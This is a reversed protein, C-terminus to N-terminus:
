KVVNGMKKVKDRSLGTALVAEKITNYVIGFVEIKIAAPNKGGKYSIGNNRRTEIIRKKTEDTHTKGFFPNNEGCFLPNYCVGRVFGDPPEEKDPLSITVTGNNYFKYGKTTKGTFLLGKVWGDPVEYDFFVKSITGNNYWSKGKIYSNKSMKERTDDSFKRNKAVERMKDKTEDSCIKCVKGDVFKFANPSINCLNYYEPSIVANYENILLYEMQYLNEISDYEFHLVKRHFRDIGYKKIARKFHVGSGLYGDDVKGLHLGIYKKGNVLNEWLYVFGIYDDM